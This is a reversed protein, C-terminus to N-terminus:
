QGPHSAARKLLFISGGLRLRDGEGLARPTGQVRQENLFTGNTSNNDHLWLSGERFEICAHYASLFKDEAIPLANEAETGIWFPSQEIAFSKGAEWGEQALLVAAPQGPAPPRFETHIKTRTRHHAAVPPEPLPAPSRRAPEESLAAEPPPPIPAEFEGPMDGWTEYLPETDPMEPFKNTRHTQYASAPPPLPETSSAAPWPAPPPMPTEPLKEALPSM